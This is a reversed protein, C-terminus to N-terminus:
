WRSSRQGPVATAATRGFAVNGFAGVSRESRGMSRLEAADEGRDCGTRCSKEHTWERAPWIRCKRLDVHSLSELASLDDRCPPPAPDCGDLEFVCGARRAGRPRGVPHRSHSRENAEARARVEVERM